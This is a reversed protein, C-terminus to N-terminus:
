VYLYLYLYLYAQTLSNVREPVVLRFAHQFNNCEAVAARVRQMTHM